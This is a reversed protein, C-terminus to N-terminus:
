MFIFDTVTVNSTHALKLGFDGYDFGNGTLDGYIILGGKTVLFSLRDFSLGLASVDIKDAGHQFDLITDRVGGGARSDTRNDFIFRDAGENGTLVDAGAGGRILDDGVGGTIRDNGDDGFLIDADGGGTLIYDGWINDDGAGGHILDSGWGGSIQDQNVGGNIIDNATGSVFVLREVNRITGGLFQQELGGLFQVNLSTTAQVFNADIQDYGEGGDILLDPINSQTQDPDFFDRAYYLIIQDDGANGYLTDAGSQGDIRDNGLGGVITDAGYSGEIQDDGDGGNLLDNGSYGRLVDNGGFGNITDSDNTGNIVNNLEDGNIIAM